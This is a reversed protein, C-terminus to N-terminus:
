FVTIIGVHLWIARRGISIFCKIIAYNLFQLMNFNNSFCNESYNLVYLIYEIKKYTNVVFDTENRAKHALTNVHWLTWQPILGGWFCWGERKKALGESLNAFLGLGWGKKSFEGRCIPNEHVGKGGLGELFRFKWHVGMINLIKMRLGM